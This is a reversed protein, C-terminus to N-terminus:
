LQLDLCMRVEGVGYCGVGAERGEKGAWWEGADVKDKMSNFLATVDFDGGAGTWQRDGRKAAWDARRKEYGERLQKAMDAQAEAVGRMLKGSGLGEKLLSKLGTLANGGLASSSGPTVKIVDDLQLTGKSLQEQM